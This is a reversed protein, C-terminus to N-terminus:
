AVYRLSVIKYPNKKTKGDLSDIIM